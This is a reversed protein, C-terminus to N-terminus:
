ILNSGIKVDQILFSCFTKRLNKAAFHLVSYENPGIKIDKIKQKLEDNFTQNSHRQWADFDSLSVNEIDKIIHQIENKYNYDGQKLNPSVPQYTSWM